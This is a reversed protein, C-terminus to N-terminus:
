LIKDSVITYMVNVINSYNANSLPSMGDGFRWTKIDRSVLIRNSTNIVGIVLFSVIFHIEVKLYIFQLSVWIYPSWSIECKKPFRHCALRKPYWRKYIWSWIDINLPYLYRKFYAGLIWWSFYIPCFLIPLVIGPNHFPRAAHSLHLFLSWLASILM